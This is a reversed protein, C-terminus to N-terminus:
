KIIRQTSTFVDFPGSVSVVYEAATELSEIIRQKTAMKGRTSRLSGLAYHVGSGVAYEGKANRIYSYDSQIEYCRNGIAVLFSGGEATGDKEKDWGNDKYAKRIARMLDIAVWKDLDIETPLVPVELAHQLLQGMRFSSTYGILLPGKRFVKAESVPAGTYGNSGLRDGGMIVKDKEEIAVICTV